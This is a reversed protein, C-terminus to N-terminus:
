AVKRNWPELLIGPKPHESWYAQQENRLTPIYTIAQKPIYTTVPEARVQQGFLGLLAFVVLCMSAFIIAAGISTEKAKDYIEKLDAYDFLAKRALHAFWVSIVPTALQAALTATMGGGSTDTYYMFFM